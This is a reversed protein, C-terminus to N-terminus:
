YASKERQENIFSFPIVSKHYQTGHREIVTLYDKSVVISTRNCHNCLISVGSPAIAYQTEGDEPVITQYGVSNFLEGVLSTAGHKQEPQQVVSSSTLM